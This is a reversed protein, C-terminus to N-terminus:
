TSSGSRLYGPLDSIDDLVVDAFPSLDAHTAPGTLVAVNLGVGAARGAMLDHTSDGVMATADPAVGHAECFAHIMGPEPKAGYGSDFGAVFSFYSTANAAALQDRASHEYDNTVVGLVHGSSMLGGLVPEFACVPAVPVGDLRAVAIQNIQDVSLHPLHIHWASIVEAVSAGVILARLPNPWQIM